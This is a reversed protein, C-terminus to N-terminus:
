SGSCPAPRSPPFLRSCCLARLGCWLAAISSNADNFMEYIMGKTTVQVDSVKMRELQELRDSIKEKALALARPSMAGSM